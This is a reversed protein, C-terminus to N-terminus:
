RSVGVEHEAIQRLDSQRGIGAFHLLLGLPFHDKEARFRMKM